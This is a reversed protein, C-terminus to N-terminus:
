GLDATIEARDPRGDYWPCEGDTRESAALESAAALVAGSPTPDPSFVGGLGLASTAVCLSSAILASAYAARTVWKANWQEARRDESMAVGRSRNSM